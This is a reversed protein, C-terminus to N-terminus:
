KIWGIQRMEKKIFAYLIPSFVMGSLGFLIEFSFLVILIEWIDSDIDAGLSSSIIVYELKHVLMLLVLVTIATPLSVTGLLGISGLGVIIGVLKEKIKSGNNIHIRCLFNKTLVYSLLGALVAPVIKAFLVVTIVIFM